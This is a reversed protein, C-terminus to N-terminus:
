PMPRNTLTGANLATIKIFELDTEGSSQEYGCTLVITGAEPYTHVVNLAISVAPTTTGDQSVITQDYDGQLTSLVCRITTSSAPSPLPRITYLKASIAYSGAPVNLRGIEVQQNAATRLHFRDKFGSITNGTVEVSPNSIVPAKSIVPAPAAPTTSNPNPTATHNGCATQSLVLGVATLLGSVTVIVAQRNVIM